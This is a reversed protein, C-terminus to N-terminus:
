LSTQNAPEFAFGYDRSCGWAADAGVLVRENQVCSRLAMFLSLEMCLGSAVGTDKMYVCPTTRHENQEGCCM